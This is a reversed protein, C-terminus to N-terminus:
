KAEGTIKRLEDLFAPRKAYTVELEDRMRYAAGGCAKKYHRLLECVDRYNNRNNAAAASKRIYEVFLL